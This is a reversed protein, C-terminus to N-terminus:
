EWSRRGAAQREAETGALWDAGRPLIKGVPRVRYLEPEEAGPPPRGHERLARAAELLRRRVRIIMGDAPGLHEDSRDAIPGMSELIARDQLPNSIVGFFLRNSELSRDRGYDREPGPEGSEAFPTRAKRLAAVEDDTWPEGPRYQWELMRTHTDDIPVWCKGNFSTGRGGVMGSLMTHFPFLFPHVRHYERDSDHTRSASYIAGYPTDAVQIRPPGLERVLRMGTSWSGPMTAGLVTPAAADDFRGHLFNIHSSDIDGELAQVWNCERTTAWMFAPSTPDSNWELQPLPPAPRGAGFHVWVLGGRERCHLGRARVKHCFRLDEPENPMDVCRGERDLKWGHYVCRIGGPENRGFYLSAGRHPCREFLVTPVGDPDRAAVLKEGLLTLRQIPGGAELDASLMAPLWYCRLLEGMPTGAGVRTLEEQDRPNM